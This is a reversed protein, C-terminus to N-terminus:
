TSERRCHIVISEIDELDNIKGRMKCALDILAQGHSSVSYEKTYSELISRKPEGKEPLPVQFVQDPGGLVTAILSFDGEYIPAPSTEGRM